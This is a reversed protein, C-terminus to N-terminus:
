QQTLTFTLSASVKGPTVVKGPESFLRAQLPINYTNGGGLVSVRSVSINQKFSLRQQHTDILEILTNQASNAQSNDLSILGPRNASVGAGDIHLQALELKAGAECNFPLTFTKYPATNDQLTKTEVRDFSVTQSNTGAFTCSPMQPSIIVPKATLVLGISDNKRRVGVGWLRGTLTSPNASVSGIKVLVVQIDGPRVSADVSPGPPTSEVTNFAWNCASVANGIIGLRVGPKVRIELGIGPINTECPQFGNPGRGIGIINGHIYPAVLESNGSCRVNMYVNPEVMKIITGIPDSDKVTITSGFDVTASVNEEGFCTAIAMNSFLCTISLICFKVLSSKSSQKILTSQLQMRYTM